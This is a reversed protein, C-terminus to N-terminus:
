YGYHGTKKGEGPFNLYCVLSLIEKDLAREHTLHTQEAM